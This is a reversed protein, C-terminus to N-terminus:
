DPSEQAAAEAAVEPLLVAAVEMYLLRAAVAVVAAAGALHLRATAPVTAAAVAV